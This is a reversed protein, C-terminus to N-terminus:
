LIAFGKNKKLFNLCYCYITDFMRAFFFFLSIIIIIVIEEFSIDLIDEQKLLNNESSWNM